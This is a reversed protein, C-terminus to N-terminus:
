YGLHVGCVTYSPRGAIHELDFHAMSGTPEGADAMAFDAYTLWRGNATVQLQAM